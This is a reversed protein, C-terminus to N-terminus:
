TRLKNNLIDEMRVRLIESFYDFNYCSTKLDKYAESAIKERLDKNKLLFIIKDAFEYDSNAIMINKKDILFDEYGRLSFNTAVIPMRKMIAELIKINTGAGSYIPSVSICSKRFYVDPNEVFGTLIIGDIKEFEDKLNSPLGKGIIYFSITPDKERIIPFIRKIFRRLGLYNPQYGLSGIFILNKNDSVSQKLNEKDEEIFPLNPLFFENRYQVQKKNSLFIAPICQRYRNYSKGIKYKAIHRLILNKNLYRGSISQIPHDDVDVLLNPYKELNAMIATEIRQVLIIDYDGNKIIEQIEVKVTINIGYFPDKKFLLQFLRYIKFGLSNNNIFMRFRSPLSEKRQIFYINNFNIHQKLRLSEETPSNFCIIDLEGIRGISKALYFSRINSGRYPNFPNSDGTIFLIKM